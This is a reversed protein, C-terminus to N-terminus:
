SPMPERQRVRHVHKQADVRRESDLLVQLRALLKDGIADWRHWQQLYLLGQRRMAERRAEDPLLSGIADLWAQANDALCMGAADAPAAMGTAAASSAITPLGLALYDLVKNQIGTAIQMPAVGFACGEAASALDAVRGIAEVGPMRALARQTRPSAPGVVRLTFGPLQTIVHQAFWRVADFNPFYDMKGIFLAAPASSVSVPRSPTSFGQPVVMSRHEQLGLLELDRSSAVTALDVRTQLLREYRRARPAEFRNALGWPSLLHSRQATQRANDSVADCYDLVLPARFHQLYPGMRILHCFVIDARAEDTRCADHLSAVSNMAAQVPVDPNRLGRAVAMVRTLRDVAFRRIALGQVPPSVRSDGVSGTAICWLRVDFERVLQEVLHRARLRDGGHDSYPDRSTLFLLSPKM